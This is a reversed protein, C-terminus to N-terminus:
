VRKLEYELYTEFLSAITSPDDFDSANLIVDSLGNKVFKWGTTNEFIVGELDVSCFVYAGIATVSSPITINKINTDNFAGIGIKTLKSNSEFIVTELNPCFAFASEGIKEINNSIEVKELLENGVFAMNAIEKIEVGDISSPIKIETLTEGYATLKKIKNSTVEFIKEMKPYVKIDNKLEVVQFSNATIKNEFTGNDLYWGDFGYGDKTPEAPFTLVENGNTEITHYVNGEVMFEIKSKVNGEPSTGGPNSGDNCATLSFLSFCLMFCMFLSMLKRKM